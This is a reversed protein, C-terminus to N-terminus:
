NNGDVGSAAVALDALAAAALDVAVVLGIVALDEAAVPAILAAARFARSASAQFVAVHDIRLRATWIALAVEVALDTSAAVPAILTVKM